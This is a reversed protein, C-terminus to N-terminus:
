SPCTTSDKSTLDGHSGRWTSPPPSELGRVPCAAARSAWCLPFVLLSLPFSLSISVSLSLSIALMVVASLCIHGLHASLAWGCLLNHVTGLHCKLTVFLVPWSACCLSWIIVEIIKRFSAYIRVVGWKRCMKCLCNSCLRYFSIVYHGGTAQCPLAAFALIHHSIIVM